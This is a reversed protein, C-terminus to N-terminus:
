AGAHELTARDSAGAILGAAGTHPHPVNAVPEPVRYARGASISATRCFLGRM